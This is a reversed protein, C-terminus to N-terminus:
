IKQKKQDTRTTQTELFRDMEHSDDLKKAYLREYFERIIWEIEALDTIIDEIKKINEFILKQNQQNKKQQKRIQVRVKIIEESRVIQHIQKEKQLEKFYLTLNNSIKM